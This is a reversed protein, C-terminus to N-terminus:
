ESNKKGGREDAPGNIDPLAWTRGEEKNKTNKEKTKTADSNLQFMHVTTKAEKKDGSERPVVVM